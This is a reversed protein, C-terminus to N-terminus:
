KLFEALNSVKLLEKKDVIFFKRPREEWDDLMATQERKDFAIGAATFLYNDILVVLLRDTFDKHAKAEKLTIEAGHKKLWAENKTGDIPNIYVGM